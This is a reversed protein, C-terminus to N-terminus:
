YCGYFDDPANTKVGLDRLEKNSLSTYLIYGEIYVVIDRCCSCATSSNYVYKKVHKKTYALYDKKNVISLVDITKIFRTNM